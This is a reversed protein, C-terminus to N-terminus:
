KGTATKKINRENRKLIKMLIAEEHSWLPSNKELGIKLYKQLKKNEYMEMIDPHVYYKKCVTRTNGLQASVYDFTKIMNEKCETATEAEGLGILSHLAHVCGAWTRFDKATFDEGTVNRIYSNVHESSVSHPENNGNYYQFLEKGPIERCQKVIKALKKNNISVSHNIGKKGKFVFRIKNGEIKVHQDKLTTLGYSGYLKEYSSNGIRIYTCEMLSIILALVKELTLEKAGLDKELQLRLQPLKEGFGKLHVFKTQNRLNSWNEHYKYQKRKKADIGTVQIHGNSKKCIWVNEWAPPIVLKRIRELEKKDTLKKGKLRYEFGNEKRIRVIGEMTDNVYVLSALQASKSPDKIVETITSLPLSITQNMNFAFEFDYWNVSHFKHFGPFFM